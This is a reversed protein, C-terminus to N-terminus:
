ELGVKLLGHGAPVTTRDNLLLLVHRHGLNWLYFTAASLVVPPSMLVVSQTAQAALTHAPPSAGPALGTGNDRAARQLSGPALCTPM